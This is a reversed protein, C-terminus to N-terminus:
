DFAEDDSDGTCGPNFVFDDDEGMDDDPEEKKPVIEDRMAPVLGKRFATSLLEEATQIQPYQRIAWKLYLEFETWDVQM